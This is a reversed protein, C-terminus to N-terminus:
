TIARPPSRVPGGHLPPPTGAPILVEFSAGGGPRDRAAVEGGHAVAIARVVALGLGAGPASSARVLREFLRSGREGVGPGRDAVEIAIRAGARRVRVTLPPAAHKLANEVLNILVQEFLVPDIWLLLEPEVDVEVARDGLEDELRTLAAGVLEDAPVWERVPQLGTEVRTLQLLNALV